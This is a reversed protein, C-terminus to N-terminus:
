ILMQKVHNSQLNHKELIILMRHYRLFAFKRWVSTYLTWCVQSILSPFIIGSCLYLKTTINNQVISHKKTQMRMSLRQWTNLYRALDQKPLVDSFTSLIIKLQRSM